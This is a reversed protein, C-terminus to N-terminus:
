ISIIGTGPEWYGPASKVTKSYGLRKRLYPFPVLQRNGLKMNIFAGEVNVEYYENSASLYRQSKLVM